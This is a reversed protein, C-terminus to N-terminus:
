NAYLSCNYLFVDGRNKSRLTEIENHLDNLMVQHQDQLFKINQELQAIRVNDSSREVM